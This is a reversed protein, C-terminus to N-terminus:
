SGSVILTFPQIASSAFGAGASLTVHYTGSTGKAPTGSLIGTGNGGQFRVGTPLAGRETVSPAPNGKAAVIFATADGVAFTATDASRFTPVAGVVLTFTQGASLATGQGATFTIQYSGSTDRAPTGSLM